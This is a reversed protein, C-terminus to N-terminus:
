EPETLPRATINMGRAAKEVASCLKDVEDIDASHKLPLNALVADAYERIQKLKSDSDRMLPRPNIAQFYLLGGLYSVALLYNKEEQAQADPDHVEFFQGPIDRKLPHTQVFQNAIQEIYARARDLQPALTIHYLGPHQIILPMELSSSKGGRIFLVVLTILLVLIFLEVLM